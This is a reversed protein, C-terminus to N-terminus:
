SRVRPRIVYRYLYLATLAFTSGAVRTPRCTHTQKVENQLVGRANGATVTLLPKHFDMRRDLRAAFVAAHDLAFANNAYNAAALGPVLLPLALVFSSRRVIFSSRSGEDEANM